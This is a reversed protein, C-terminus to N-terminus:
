IKTDEDFLTTQEPLPAAKVAVIVPSVIRRISVEALNFERALEAYNYGNFKRRIEENRLNVTVTDPKCVYVCSGAYNKVLKKYAEMGICEALERQDASLDEIELNDLLSMTNM